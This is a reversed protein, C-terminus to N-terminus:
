ARTEDIFDAVDAIAEAWTAYNWCTSTVAVLGNVIAYGDMQWPTAPEDDDGDDALEPVYYIRVRDLSARLSEVYDPHFPREGMGIVPGGM